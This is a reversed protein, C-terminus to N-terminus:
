TLMRDFNQIPKQALLSDQGWVLGTRLALKQVPKEVLRHLLTPRQSALSPTKQTQDAKQEQGVTSGRQPRAPRKQVPPVSCIMATRRLLQWM